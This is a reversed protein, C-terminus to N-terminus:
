CATKLRLCPPRAHQPEHPPLSDSLVSHSQVSNFQAQSISYQHWILLCLIESNDTIAAMVMILQHAGLFCFFTFFTQWRAAMLVAALGLLSSQFSEPHSFVSCRGSMDLTCILPIIETFGSEQIKGCM